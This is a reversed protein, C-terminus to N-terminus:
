LIEPGGPEQQDWGRALLQAMRSRLDNGQQGGVMRVRYISSDAVILNGAQDMTVGIPYHLEASTAPRTVTGARPASETLIRDFEAM